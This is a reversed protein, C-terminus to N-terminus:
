VRPYILKQRLSLGMAFLLGLCTMGSILAGVEFSLPFYTFKVQHAGEPMLVARFIGDARLIETDKGDITAAWGPFFVESLVLFGRQTANAEIDIENPGYALVQVADVPASGNRIEVADQGQLIVDRAPDFQPSKLLSIAELEDRALESSYAM